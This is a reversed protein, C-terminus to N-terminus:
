VIRDTLSRIATTTPSSVPLSKDRVCVRLAFLLHNSAAEGNWGFNLRRALTVTWNTGDRWELLWHKFCDFRRLRGSLRVRVVLFATTVNM